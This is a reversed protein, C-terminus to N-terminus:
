EDRRWCCVSASRPPSSGTGMYAGLGEGLGNGKCGGSGDGEGPWAGGGLGGGSPSVPARSLSDYVDGCGSGFAGDWGWFTWATM